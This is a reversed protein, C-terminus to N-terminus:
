SIKAPRRCREPAALRGGSWSISLVDSDAPHLQVTLEAIADLTRRHPRVLALEVPKASGMLRSERIQGRRDRLATSAGRPVVRAAALADIPDSKGPEQGSRRARAMPKPSVRVVSEGARLPEADLRRSLYRCDELFKTLGVDVVAPKCLERRPQHLDRNGVMMDIM